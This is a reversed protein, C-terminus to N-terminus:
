WGVSNQLLINELSEYQNPCFYFLASLITSIFKIIRIQLSVSVYHYSFYEVMPAPHVISGLHVSVNKRVESSVFLGCSLGAKLSGGAEGGM